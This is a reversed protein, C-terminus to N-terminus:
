DNTTRNIYIEPRKAPCWHPPPLHAGVIKGDVMRPVPTLRRPRQRSRCEPRLLGGGFAPCDRCDTM